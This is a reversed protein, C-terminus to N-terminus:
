KPGSCARGAADRPVRRRSMPDFGRGSAAGSVRHLARRMGSTSTRGVVSPATRSSSPSHPSSAPVRPLDKTVVLGDTAEYLDVGDHYAEFMVVKGALGTSTAATSQPIISASMLFSKGLASRPITLNNNAAVSLELPRAGDPRPNL